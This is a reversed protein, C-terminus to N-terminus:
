AHAHTGISFMKVVGVLTPRAHCDDYGQLWARRLEIRREFEVQHSICHLHIKNARNLTSQRALGESARWVVTAIFQYVKIRRGTIYKSKINMVRLTGNFQTPTLHPIHCRFWMLTMLSTCTTYGRGKLQM